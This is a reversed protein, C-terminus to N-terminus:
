SQKKADEKQQIEQGPGATWLYGATQNLSPGNSNNPTWGDEM